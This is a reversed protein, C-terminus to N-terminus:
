TGEDDRCVDAVIEGAKAGVAGEGAGLVAEIMGEIMGFSVRESQSMGPVGPVRKVRSWCRNVQLTILCRFFCRLAGGKTTGTSGTAKFM